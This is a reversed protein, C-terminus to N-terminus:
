TERRLKVMMPEVQLECWRQVSQQLVAWRYGIEQVNKAVWEAYAAVESPRRSLDLRQVNIHLETRLRVTEKCFERLKPDSISAIFRTVPDQASSVVADIEAAFTKLDAENHIM